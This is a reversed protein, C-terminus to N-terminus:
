AALSCPQREDQSRLGVMRLLPSSAQLFSFELHMTCVSQRAKFRTIRKLSAHRLLARCDGTTTELLPQDYMARRRDHDVTAMGLKVAADRFFKNAEGPEEHLRFYHCDRRSCDIGEGVLLSALMTLDGFVMTHIM